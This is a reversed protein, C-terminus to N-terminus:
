LGLKFCSAASKRPTPGHAQSGEHEENEVNNNRPPEIPSVGQRAKGVEPWSEDDDISLPMTINNRPQQAPLRVVFPDDIVDPNDTPLDNIPSKKRQRNAGNQSPDSTSPNINTNHTSTPSPSPSSTKVQSQQVSKRSHWVNAIQSSGHSPTHTAVGSLTAMTLDTNSPADGNLIRTDPADSSSSSADSNLTTSLNGTNGTTVTPTAPTPLGPFTTNLGPSKIAQAKKARDAYSLSVPKNSSSASAATM